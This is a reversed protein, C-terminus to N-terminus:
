KGPSTVFGHAPENVGLERDQRPARQTVRATELQRLGPVSGMKTQLIPSIDTKEPNREQLPPPMTVMNMNGGTYATSESM